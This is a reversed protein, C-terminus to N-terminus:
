VLPDPAPGALPDPPTSRQPRHRAGEIPILEGLGWLELARVIHRSPRRIVTPLGAKCQARWAGVLVKMGSSDIFATESLDIVLPRERTVAQELVQRLQDKTHLDIEGAVLVTVESGRETITVRCEGAPM